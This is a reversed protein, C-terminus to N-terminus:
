SGLLQDTVRDSGNGVGNVVQQGLQGLTGGIVTVWLVPAILASTLAIWDAKGDSFLDVLAVIAMALFLLVAGFAWVGTLTASVTGAVATGAAAIGAILAAILRIRPLKSKWKLTLAITAFILATGLAAGM